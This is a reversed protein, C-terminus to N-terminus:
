MKVKVSRDGVKVVVITGKPLNTAIVAQGGKVRASGLAKGDLSYVAVPQGELESTVLLNGDRSSILVPVRETPANAPTIIPEAGTLTANAWVLTATAVESDGYGEKTAYVSIEYTASFSIRSAIDSKIDTDTITYHFEVGETDCSFTMEKNAYSITPTTCIHGEDVQLFYSWYETSKYKEMTGRPVYLTANDFVDQDFCSSTIGCPNEMKSIVSKLGYCQYFAYEGITTVSNPITVSTLGTCGRFAHDGITTVSNPIIVSTLTSCNQFAQNGITTVTNPIVTTICGQILTNTATEIIANCNNRSDYKTNGSEVKISTLSRCGRFTANGISTVSNPITLSTLGTCGEFALSGITTVSNPITLSTLGSCSRFAYNGITTVSNPITLSTLGSCGEFANGGISTVTNPIVTTICGEKLTNTATEIIANCNKRSDYVTNENEVTISTLGTCGYFVASGISTVSKPITVSTLSTCNSFASGSIRTVPVTSGEYTVKDPINVDGSYEENYSYFYDGKFTVELERHNNNNRVYYYITVGDENEVAINHAGALLPLVLLLTSLFLKKM